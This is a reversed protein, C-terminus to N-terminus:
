QEQGDQVGKKELKEKVEKAFDIMEPLNQLKKDMMSFITRLEELNKATTLSDKAYSIERPSISPQKRKQEVVEAVVADMEEAPTTEYGAVKLLWGIKMRFAKGVARTQAMSAVAYEDFGGKGAERNSCIAMGYGVVKDNRDRLSVEARYKYEGPKSDLQEVKEVIPFTGTFAGAIQWGEVNVYNKGKIQTFLKNQVILDKLNTAFNMIDRPNTLEVQEDRTAIENTKM